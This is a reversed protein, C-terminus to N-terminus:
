QNKAFLLANTECKLKDPHRFPDTYIVPGCQEHKKRSYFKWGRLYTNLNALQVNALNVAQDITAYLQDFIAQEKSCLWDQGLWVTTANYKGSSMIYIADEKPLSDNWVPNAGGGSKAEVVVFTGSFDQILFDPFSQSGAPQRIFTGPAMGPVLSLIDTQRKTGTYKIARLLANKKLKPFTLIKKPKGNKNISMTTQLIEVYGQAVLLNALADEHNSHRGGSGTHQNAWHPMALSNQIFKELQISM